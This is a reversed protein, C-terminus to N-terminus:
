FTILRSGEKIGVIDIYSQGKHQSLRLVTVVGCYAECYHLVSIGNRRLSPEMKIALNYHDPNANHNEGTIIENVISTVVSDGDEGKAREQIDIRYHHLYEYGCGACKLANSDNCKGASRIIEDLINM